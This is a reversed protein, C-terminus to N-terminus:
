RLEHAKRFQGQYDFIREVVKHKGKDRKAVVFDPVKLLSQHTVVSNPNSFDIKSTVGVRLFQRKFYFSAKESSLSFYESVDAGDEDHYTVKLRQNQAELQMGSVRLVLANKLNLADRLKDDPDVIPQKCQHCVRAAIDNQAGCHECEKFRFRFDCQESQEGDELIGQCRRGFHEIVKGDSDTKGWFTNAFGCGPCLVQVPESDSDPKVSGVEPHFLDFGNAAYDVVLCETKGPALRLGRGVIQQYLSVSETPRLIAIFDVHPADFGTTLVSVNVLYKIQKEKFQRIIADREANHTDGIVLATEDSPLYSQIEQAHQITSAFIMVGTRDTSLTLVQDIIAKTARQNEKLLQNIDKESIRGFADKSLSDFDYHTIAADILKPPTLYNNSIMYRLPLEYICHEFPAHQDGRVFGHYHFRYIFGMGLRYPTATLGLVKLASNNSRIHSILKQYQTNEDGSVRHCEDIIILSYEEDLANLNNGLSQVSAFTVQQALSKQKLGASYISAKLGFSEYKEHNQEVLEKVHTVVLIKKRALRALEAIVLSKGSGTPLVIVASSNSKRFHTLTKEVAEQQYPRLQYAM